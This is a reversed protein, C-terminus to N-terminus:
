RDKLQQLTKVRHIKGTSTEVFDPIFFVAKPVEYPHITELAKINQLLPEPSEPESEVLLVLRQGLITDPLGAVFFRSPILTSLKAEIQEPLLKVGGSNIISDYRGLWRFRTDSVLAVLDNTVVDGEAIHPAHIVLCGRDDTSIAVGPLTEFTDPTQQNLPKLAIHTLTETMGYTEFVRTSINQLAVKLTPSVPAGGVILINIQDLQVLSNQVQLPVMAVFDYSQELTQLPTSSPMIYDLHLGLMMARVLMMKGAIGSCPLCLLATHSPQLDFYAGTARASHVMAEKQVVIKKPTGTSGSTFIEMYPQPSAWALLFDGITQEFAQGEKIM